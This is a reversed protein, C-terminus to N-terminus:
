SRSPVSWGAVSELVGRLYGIQRAACTPGDPEFIFPEVAANGSYGVDSLAMMIPAFALSGEGPGRRNPDNFHIHAIRGGPVHRRILDPVAEAEGAAAASCDIMTCIAPSGIASVVQLADAITKIFVNEKKTLPEICYSVGAAEADKAIAAFSETGRKSSDEDDLLRAMPSGHVMVSGGLDATLEILGRMIAITKLRRSEDVTTISADDLGWLLAHSGTIRIGEDSAIRRIRAREDRPLRWPEKGLTFPAIELGDYGVARAFACQDAFPMSALAENCLSILM